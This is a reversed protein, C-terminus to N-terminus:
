HGVVENVLILKVRGPQGEGRFLLVKAAASRFSAPLGYAKRARESEKDILYEDIRLLGEEVDKVVKQAGVVWIVTGGAYVYSPLQSGTGSAVIVTGTETVAHVSGVAFDPAAGLKRMQRGQTQPNMGNLAARVSNYRGSENIERTLGIEELTVSTLTLVEAGPPLLALVKQKADEGDAALEADIGHAALAELTREIADTPAASTWRTAVVPAEITASKM